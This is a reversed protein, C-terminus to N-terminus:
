TEITIIGLNTMRVSMSRINTLCPDFTLVICIFSVSFRRYSRVEKRLIWTMYIYFCIDELSLRFFRTIAIRVLMGNRLLTMVRKIFKCGALVVVPCQILLRITQQDLDRLNEYIRTSIWEVSRFHRVSMPVM